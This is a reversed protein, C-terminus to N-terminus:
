GSTLQYSEVKGDALNLLVGRLVGEAYESGPNACVTRGIKM